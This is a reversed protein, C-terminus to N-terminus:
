ENWRLLFLTLDVKYKFNLTMGAHTYDAKIGTQDLWEDIININTIWWQADNIIVSHQNSGSNVPILRSHDKSILAM